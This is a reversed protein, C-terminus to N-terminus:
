GSPGRPETDPRRLSFRNKGHAGVGLFTADIVSGLSPFDAIGDIQEDSIVAPDVFGEIDPQAVVKVDLGWSHRGVVEVAMVDGINLEDEM